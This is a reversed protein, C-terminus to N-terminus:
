TCSTQNQHFVSNEVGLRCFSSHVTCKASQSCSPPSILTYSTYPHRERSLIPENCRTSPLISWNIYLYTTCCILSYRKCLLVHRAPPHILLVIFQFLCSVSQHGFFFKSLPWRLTWVQIEDVIKRIFQVTTAFDSFWSILVIKKLYKLLFPLFYRFGDQDFQHVEHGVTTLGYDLCITKWYLVLRSIQKKKAFVVINKWKHWKQL